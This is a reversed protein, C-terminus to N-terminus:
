LPLTITVQLGGSSHSKFDLTGNHNRIIEDAIALGLGYGGDQRNRAKDTRYFPETLQKMQEDSVGDGFDIIDLTATNNLTSQLLVVVETGEKTHFLANRIINEIARELHIYNGKLTVNSPLHAKVRKNKESYEFNADDIVSVLLQTLSVHELIRNPNKADRLYIMVEEILENLREGEQEIRDLYSEYLLSDRELDKDKLFNIALKQRALPSRLEHAIDTLMRKQNEQLENINDIMANFRRSFEGIEDTQDTLTDPLRIHLDGQGIQKVSQAIEQLPRSLRKVWFYALLLSLLVMPLSRLIFGLLTFSFFLPVRNINRLELIAPRNYRDTFYILQMTQSNIDLSEPTDEHEDDIEYLLIYESFDSELLQKQAANLGRAEATHIVLESQARLEKEYLHNWDSKVRHLSLLYAAQVVLMVFLTLVVTM